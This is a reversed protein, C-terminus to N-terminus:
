GNCPNQYTLVSGFSHPFCCIYPAQLLAPGDAAGSEKILEVSVGLHLVMLSQVCIPICVSPWVLRVAAFRANCLSATCGCM